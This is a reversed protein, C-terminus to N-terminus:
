SDTDTSNSPPRIEQISTTVEAELEALNTGVENLISQSKTLNFASAPMGQM